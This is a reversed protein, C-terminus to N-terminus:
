KIVINVIKGPIYITKIIDHGDIHAEVRENATATEIVKDEAEDAAVEIEGRLKGNVQVAVTITDQTLYQENFLPWTDKHVTTHHGLQFWLEEAAFPAFPAICAVMAELAQQWAENRALNDVKLRYLDNLTGMAAAIATNYRNEEIDVTMKKIMGHTARRLQKQME